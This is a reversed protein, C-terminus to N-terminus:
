AFSVKPSHSKSSPILRATSGLFEAPDVLGHANSKRDVQLEIEVMDDVSNDDRPRIVAAQPSSCYYVGAPTTSDSIDSRHTPISPQTTIKPYTAAPILPIFPVLAQPDEGPTEPNIPHFPQVPHDGSHKPFPALLSSSLSSPLKFALCVLRVLFYPPFWNLLKLIPSRLILHSHHTTM